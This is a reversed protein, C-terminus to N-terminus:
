PDITITYPGGATAPSQNAVWIRVTGGGTTTLSVSGGTQGASSAIAAGLVQDNSGDRFEVLPSFATSSVTVHLPKGAPVFISFPDAVTSQGAVTTYACDKGLTAPLQLLGFTTRTNQCGTLSDLRALTLRYSGLSNPTAHSAELWYRTGAPVALVQSTTTAGAPPLSYWFGYGDAAVFLEPAFNGTESATLLEQVPLSFVYYDAFLGTAIQCDTTALTGSVTSGVTMTLAQACPNFDFRAVVNPSPASGDIVCPITSGTCSGSWSTFDNGSLPEFSPNLGIPTGPPFTASCTGSAVGNAIQCDIGVPTSLIWGVGVGAGTVTVSVPGVYGLTMSLPATTQGRRALVEQSGVYLPVDAALLQVQVLFTEEPATMPVEIGIPIQDAQPPFTVDLTKVVSEDSRSVVVHVDLVQQDLAASHAGPSFTVALSLRAIGPATGSSTDVCAALGLGFFLLITCVRARSWTM